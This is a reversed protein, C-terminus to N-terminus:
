ATKPLPGGQISTVGFHFGAFCFNVNLTTAYGMTYPDPHVPLWVSVGRTLCPGGNPDGQNAADGYGLGFSATAGPEIVVVRPPVTAFIQSGGNRTVRIPTGRYSSPYFSVKPYGRLTCARHSVNVILYAVGQNGAAAYAGSEAEVAVTIQGGACTAPPRRATASALAAAMPSMPGLLAACLVGVLAGRRLTSRTSSTM